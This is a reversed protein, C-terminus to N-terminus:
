SHGVPQRLVPAPLVLKVKQLDQVPEPCRALSCLWGLDFFKRLCGLRGFVAGCLALREAFYQRTLNRICFRSIFSWL